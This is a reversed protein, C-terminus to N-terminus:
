RSVSDITDDTSDCAKVTVINNTDREVSYHTLSSSGTEPDYPIDKLYRELTSDLDVCDGDGSVECAGGLSCGSSASGIQRETTDIGAPYTGQNDIVYQHIASLISQIDALRRSDRADEFRTIPDLSVVVVTALVAIIGITLLIELLTFGRKHKM